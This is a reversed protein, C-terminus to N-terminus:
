ARRGFKRRKAGGEFQGAGRGYSVELTKSAGQCRRAFFLAVCELTARRFGVFFLDVAACSRYGARDEGRGVVCRRRHLAIWELEPRLGQSQDGDDGYLWPPREEQGHRARGQRSDGAFSRGVQDRRAADSRRHSKFTMTPFKATDFFDPSKLHGDRAAVGTDVTTVDIVAEVSSKSVNAADFHIVGSVGRFSGHVTSIAMHKISFDAESHAGDIKWDKVQASMVGTGAALVIAAALVAGFRKM